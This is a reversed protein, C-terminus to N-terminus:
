EAVSLQAMALALVAVGREIEEPSSYEDPRHSYGNKSPIFVMATPFLQAMFVTDHFARSVMSMRELGLEACAREVAAIIKPDSTSSPDSNLTDFSYRIKRRPALDEKLFSKLGALIEDRVSANRDRVDITMEIKSPISNCAGPHVILIGVTAVADPSPHNNALEEAKLTLESAACLADRREEMLVTGAHGGDGDIIVRSTSSAAINTVVGIPLNAAELRPGQEIHLEVFFRYENGTLKVSELPADYGAARRAAEFDIGDADRLERLQAPTFHGSMVRSGLCGIGFRTPEEATFMIVELSRKPKFGAEKLARMAEIGGLVGVVGDYMGSFPIADTHSGTAVAPADLDSGAFRGFLNGMADERWSFGAEELLQKVYRRGQMDTPTYLVRTMAPAPADSITGLHEIESMLRSISVNVKPLSTSM